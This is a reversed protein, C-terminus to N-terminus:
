EPSYERFVDRIGRADASELRRLLARLDNFHADDAARYHLELGDHQKLVSRWAAPDRERLEVLTAQVARKLEVPLEGRITIAGWPLPFSEWLVRIEEARVRGDDILTELRSRSVAALDARRAAVTFVSAFHSYSFGVSRFDREPEVGLSRVLARPVVFGSLSAPDNFLFRLEGARASVDELREVGSDAHTILVARYFFSGQAPGFTVIAEARAREQALLYSFAPLRIVDIRGEAMAEIAPGYAATPVLVVPVGLAGELVRRMTAFAEEREGRLDEAQIFGLRLAAPWGPPRSPASEARRCGAGAGAALLGCIAVVASAAFSWRLYVGWREADETLDRNLFPLVATM